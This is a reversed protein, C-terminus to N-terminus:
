RFFYERDKNRLEQALRRFEGLEKRKRFINRVWFMRKTRKLARRLARKKRRKKKLLLLLLLNDELFDDMKINKLRQYRFNPLDVKM